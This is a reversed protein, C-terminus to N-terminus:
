KENNVKLVGPKGELSKKASDMRTNASDTWRNIIANASDVTGKNVPLLTEVSNDEQEKQNLNCAALFYIAAIIICIRKM